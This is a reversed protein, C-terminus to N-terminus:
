VFNYSKSLTHKELMKHANIILMPAAAEFGVRGKIGIITDGIHMDRGIGYKSGIEEVKNIAKVKDSFVEGNVARLLKTYCVNYSTIRFFTTCVNGFCRKAVHKLM